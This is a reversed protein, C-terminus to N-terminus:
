PAPSDRCGKIPDDPPGQHLDANCSPIPPGRRFDNPNGIKVPSTRAMAHPTYVIISLIMLVGVIAIIPVDDMVQM